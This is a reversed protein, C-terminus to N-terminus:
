YQLYHIYTIYKYKCLLFDTSMDSLVGVLPANLSNPWLLECMHNDYWGMEKWTSFRRWTGLTKAKKTCMQIIWVHRWCTGHSALLPLGSLYGRDSTVQWKDPPQHTRKTHQADLKVSILHHAMMQPVTCSILSTM